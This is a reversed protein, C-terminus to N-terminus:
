RKKSPIRIATGQMRSYVTTGATVTSKKGGAGGAAATAVRPAARRSSAAVVPPKRTAAALPPAASASSSSPPATAAPAPTLAPAGAQEKRFKLLVPHIAEAAQLLQSRAKGGTLVIKGSVFIIIVLRPIQMRYILGPFLEPEYSCFAAHEQAIGELRIPFGVDGTGVINHIAFNLFRTDFGLKKLVKAIKRAAFCTDDENKAGTVVMKGSRFILASCKPEALRLVVAPFRSPNYEANRARTTILALDLACNLNVTGVCNRCLMSIVIDCLCNLRRHRSVAAFSGLLRQSCSCGRKDTFLTCYESYFCGSLM